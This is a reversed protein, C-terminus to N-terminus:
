GNRVSACGRKKWRVANEGVSLNVDCWGGPLSWRGDRERVLLLRGKDFVAARTDVKPTQYGTENCFLDKVRDFPLETQHAVMEAAIDRLRAYRELDYPDRGYTLGAQALSQIEMVWDLWMLRGNENM